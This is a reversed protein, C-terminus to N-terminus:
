HRATSDRRSFQTQCVRKDTVRDVARTVYCLLCAHERTQCIQRPANHPKATVKHTNNSLLRRVLDVRQFQITTYPGCPRSGDDITIGKFKIVM